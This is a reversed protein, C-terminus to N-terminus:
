MTTNMSANLDMGERSLRQLRRGVRRSPLLFLPVIVIGLVTLRWELAIMAVLTATLTIVNSVVSGLTGTLASQAGIVDNNIRRILLPPVLGVLAGLVITTLFGLLQRRYPRALGWVRRTAERGIRAGAVKEHDRPFMAHPGMQM